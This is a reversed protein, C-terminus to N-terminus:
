TRPGDSTEGPGSSGSTAEGAAAKPDPQGDVWSGPLDAGADVLEFVDKLDRVRYQGVKERAVDDSLGSKVLCLALLAKAVPVSTVPNFTIWPVSTATEIAELEDLTLDETNLVEGEFKVLWPM